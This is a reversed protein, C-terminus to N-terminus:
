GDTSFVSLIIHIIFIFIWSVSLLIYLISKIIALNKEIKTDNIDNKAVNLDYLEYMYKCVLGIQILILIMTFNNYTFYDSSVKGSNIKKFFIFNLTVIYILLGILIIIPFTYDNMIINLVQTFFGDSSNNSNNSKVDLINKTNNKYNSFYISMFILFFLSIISLSLGWITTTAPGSHGSSTITEPFFISIIIGAVCLMLLNLMDLKNNFSFGFGFIGRRDIIADLKEASNTSKLIQKGKELDEPNTPIM